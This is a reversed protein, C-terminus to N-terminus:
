SGARVPQTQLRIPQSRGQRPEPGDSVHRALGRPPWADPYRFRRETAPSPAATVRSRREPRRPASFTRAIEFFLQGSLRPSYSERGWRLRAVPQRPGQFSFRVSMRSSDLTPERLARHGTSWRPRRLLLSGGTGSVTLDFRSSAVLRAGTRWLILEEPDESGPAAVFEVPSNSGPESRVNAARKVCALRV